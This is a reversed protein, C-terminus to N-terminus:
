LLSPSIWETQTSFTSVDDCKWSPSAYTKNSIPISTGLEKSCDEILFGWYEESSKAECHKGTSSTPVFHYILVGDADISNLVDFSLDDTKKQRLIFFDCKKYKLLLSATKPFYTVIENFDLSKLGLLDEDFDSLKAYALVHSDFDPTDEEEFTSLLMSFAIPNNQALENDASTNGQCGWLIFSLLIVYKKM